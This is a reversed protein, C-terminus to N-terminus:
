RTLRCIKRSRVRRSALHGVAREFARSFVGPQAAQWPHTATVLVVGPRGAAGPQNVWRVAARAADQGGQGSYCTDLMLLLRRVKTDRLLWDILVQPTVRSGSWTAPTSTPPCCSLTTLSLSRGTVPWTCRWLITLAVNPHRVSTECGTGCSRRRRTIVRRGSTRIGSSGPSFGAIREADGALEPRDLDPDRPYHTMAATLLFRNGREVDM